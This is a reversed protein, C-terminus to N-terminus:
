AVLSPARPPLATRYSFQWGRPLEPPSCNLLLPGPAPTPPVVECEPLVFNEVLLPIPVAAQEEIKYLGSEVVSCGDQECDNDPHPAAGNEQHTATEPLHCWALFELGPVQELDCHLTALGWLALMVTAVARNLWNVSTLIGPRTLFELTVYARALPSVSECLALHWPLLELVPRPASAL